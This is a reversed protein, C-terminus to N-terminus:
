AIMGLQHTSLHSTQVSSSVKLKPEQLCLLRAIAFYEDDPDDDKTLIMYSLPNHGDTNVTEIDANRDLLLLVVNRHGNDAAEHLATDGQMNKANVDAGRRVSVHGNTATDHEVSDEVFASPALLLKVVDTNGNFAALHLATNGNNSRAGVDAGGELLALIIDTHGNHVANHLATWGDENHADVDIGRALLLSVM